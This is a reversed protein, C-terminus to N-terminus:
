LVLIARVIIWRLVLKRIPLASVGYASDNAEKRRSGKTNM